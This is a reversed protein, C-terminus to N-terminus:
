DSSFEWPLASSLGVSSKSLVPYGRRLKLSVAFIAAYLVGVATGGFLTVQLNWYDPGGGVSKAHAPTSSLLILLSVTILYPM